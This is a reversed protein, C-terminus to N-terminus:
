FSLQLGLLYTGQVEDLWGFERSSDNFLNRANIFIANDRFVKYSVRASVISKAPIIDTGFQTRMQQETFFYTSVFVGLKDRLGKWDLSAGGYLSPTWEHDAEDITAEPRESSYALIAPYPEYGAGEFFTIPAFGGINDGQTQLRAAAGNTMAGIIENTTLPYYNRLTTEQYTGYATLVLNENVVWSVSATVGMQRSELDINQYAMQVFAPIGPAPVPQLVQVMNGTSPDTFNFLTSDAMSFQGVVSDPSLYGFDKAISYFAEIDVQINKAPKVRYGLEFVDVTALDLDEAGVFTITNPFSRASRDWEHDAHTDVTFPSRNASAYNARFFSTGNLNYSATFQLPLYVQDNVNYKEARVAGILRLNNWKYDARLSGSVANLRKQANLFGRGEELLHPLDNQTTGQYYLGPRLNLGALNLDYEIHANIVDMDVKFGDDGAIVDQWGTNYNAQITFDHVDAQVDIYSTRMTRTSLPTVQDGYTSSLVDSYQTGVSLRANIKDSHDYFFNGNAAYRHRSRGPNPYKISGDLDNPDTYDLWPYNPDPLGFLDSVEYENEPNLINAYQEYLGDVPSDRFLQDLPELAPLLDSTRDMNQFNGSVRYHFKDSVKQGVSLNAIQTNLTGAQLTGNIGLETGEPKKTIINIVGSAANAGYLASAAGRVIEIRDIDAVDVPLAEWFTGGNLYNYVQRGDVMVLTMSNESYLFLNDSPLNDNGRIHIDFNGTTKERVILGPALRLAEEINRAGSAVIQDGTLVTTSLPAEFSSEAKKSAATVEQNLLLEYLEDMSIGMKEALKLVDEFPMELLQDYDMELIDKRTLKDLEKQQASVQHAFSTCAWLLGSAIILRPNM